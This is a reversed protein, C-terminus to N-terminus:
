LPRRGFCWFVPAIFFLVYASTLSLKQMAYSFLSLMTVALVGRLVHLQWRVRWLGAGQRLYWVYLVVLPWASLGRLAAVQLPPYHVSLAKLSVDMMSFSGMALLMAVIGRLAHSTNANANVNADASM